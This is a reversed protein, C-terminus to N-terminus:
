AEELLKDLQKCDNVFQEAQKRTEFYYTSVYDYYTNVLYHCVRNGDVHPEKHIILHDRM